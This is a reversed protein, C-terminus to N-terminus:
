SRVYIRDVESGSAELKYTGSGVPLPDNIALTTDGPVLVMGVLMM